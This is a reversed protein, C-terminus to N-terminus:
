KRLADVSLYTHFNVHGIGSGEAVEQRAVFPSIWAMVRVNVGATALAVLQATLAAGSPLEFEDMDITESFIPAGTTPDYDVIQRLNWSNNVRIVGSHSALGLWWASLYFFRNRPRQSEALASDALLKNIEEEIAKFFGQGDIFTSGRHNGMSAATNQTPATEGPQPIPASTTACYKQILANIPM